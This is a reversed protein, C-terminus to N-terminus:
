RTGLGFPRFNSVGNVLWRARREDRYHGVLAGKGVCRFGSDLDAMRIQRVFRGGECTNVTLNGYRAAIARITM